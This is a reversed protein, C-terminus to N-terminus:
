ARSIALLSFDVLNLATLLDFPEIAIVLIPSLVVLGVLNPMSDLELQDLLDIVILVYVFLAVKLVITLCRSWM